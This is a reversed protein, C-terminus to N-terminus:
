WPTVMSTHEKSKLVKNTTKYGTSLLEDSLMDNRRILAMHAGLVPFLMPVLPKYMDKSAQSLLIKICETGNGLSPMKPSTHKTIDYM